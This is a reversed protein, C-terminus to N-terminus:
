VNKIMGKRQYHKGIIKYTFLILPVVVIIALLMKLFISDIIDVIILTLSLIFSNNLAIIHLFRRYEKKKFNKFDINYKAMLYAEEVRPKKIKFTNKKKRLIMLFLYLLYCIIFFLLFEILIVLM